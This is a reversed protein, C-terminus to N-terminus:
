VKGTGRRVAVSSGRYGGMPSYAKMESQWETARTDREPLTSQHQM